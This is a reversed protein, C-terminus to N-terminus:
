FQEPYLVQYLIAFVEDNKEKETILGKRYEMLVRELRERSEKITNSM